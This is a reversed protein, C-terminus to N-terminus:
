KKEDNKKRFTVNATVVDNDIAAKTFEMIFNDNEIFAHPYGPADLMRIYDYIENPEKLNSIDSQDPTRRKFEVIEGTQPQAEPKNSIIETIMQEIIKNTRFFIEEASGKLSLDKKLYIDGTDVDKACKIASIKTEKFGRVILNQLPSGGRGFPLDTMHFIVCPYNEYIEAPIIDSWHPFFIYEPAIKNLNEKTLQEKANILHFNGGLKDVLNENWKRSTAIIYNM